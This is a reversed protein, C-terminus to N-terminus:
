SEDLEQVCGRQAYHDRVIRVASRIPEDHNWAAQLTEQTSETSSQEPRDLTLHKMAVEESFHALAWSGTRCSPSRPVPEPVAARPCSPHATCVPLERNM